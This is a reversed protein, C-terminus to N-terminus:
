QGEGDPLDGTARNDRDDTHQDTRSTRQGSRETRGRDALEDSSKFLGGNPSYWQMGYALSLFTFIPWVLLEIIEADKTEVVYVFWVLLALATERKYTKKNQVKM